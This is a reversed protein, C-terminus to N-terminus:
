HDRKSYLYNFLPIRYLEGLGGIGREVLTAAFRDQFSDKLTPNGKVNKMSEILRTSRYAFRSRWINAEPEAESRQHMSIFENLDYIYGASISEGQLQVEEALMSLDIEAQRVEPWRSWSVPIGFVTLSNKPQRTTDDIHEKASELAREAASAFSRVPAGPKFSAIGASFHIDPNFAVYKNFSEQLRTVLEQCSKWPGIIFFDDGGAFVTYTNPFETEQLHPLWTTFFANVQRSLAAYSSFNKARLKEAFLEGLDDIDGKLIGLAVKGHYANNGDTNQEAVRDECALLDFTKIAGLTPKQEIKPHYKNASLEDEAQIQSIFGGLYKKAIFIDHNDKAGINFLRSVRHTQNNGDIRRIFDTLQSGNIFALQYGFISVELSDGSQQTFDEAKMDGRTVVVYDHKVANEGIKLQDRSLASSGASGIEAGDVDDARDAPWYGNYCCPGYPYKIDSFTRAGTRCLDFRQHKANDLATRLTRLFASFGDPNEKPLLASCSATSTALGLGARGFTNRIFWEDIEAGVDEVFQQNIQTNAAVIMFKGAANLVVSTPPLNLSELLRITALETFLSVQLSRGRLLKAEHKSTSAGEAFVFQQIGFFDGQIFLLKEESFDSRTRMAAIACDDLADNSEHWQWLATALAAVSYSHDFLSVDPKVNFSAASPISHTYQLLLSSLHDLWLPLNSYQTSDINKISVKFSDWLDAYEKVANQKDTREVTNKECPFISEASLKQLPYRFRSQEDSSGEDMQEFISLLRATVHTLGTREEKALNYDEFDERAMGSAVRDATAIIWQLATDPKHHAAAANIFSNDGEFPYANGSLMPPIFSSLDDLALATDAAHRHSHYGGKQNFPCYLNIHSDRDPHRVYAEARQAFKGIDHLLAAAAVRSAVLMEPKIESDSM